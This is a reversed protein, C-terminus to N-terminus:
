VFIYHQIVKLNIKYKLFYRLFVSKINYQKYNPRFYINWTKQMFWESINFFKPMECMAPLTYDFESNSPGDSPDRLTKELSSM